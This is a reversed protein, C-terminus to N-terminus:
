FTMWLVLFMQCTMFFKMLKESFCIVQQHQELHCDYRYRGSQCIFRTLYSSKDDLKLNHYGSSAYILSLYRVNTLRPLIDNLMPGRHIPRMLVQNLWAPDLCLRIKGNAKPAVVFPNCWESVENVGLPAKRHQQQLRELKDHFPKQLAYAM